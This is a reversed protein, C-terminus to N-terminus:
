PTRTFSVSEAPECLRKFGREVPRTCRTTFNALTRTWSYRYRSTSSPRCRSWCIAARTKRIKPGAYCHKPLWHRCSDVLAATARNSRDFCFLSSINRSLRHASWLVICSGGTVLWFVSVQDLPKCVRLCTLLSGLDGLLDSQLALLYPSASNVSWPFQRYANRHRDMTERGQNCCLGADSNMGMLATTM